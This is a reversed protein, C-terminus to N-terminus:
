PSYARLLARLLAQMLDPYRFWAPQTDAAGQLGKYIYVLTKGELGDHRMLVQAMAAEYKQASAMLAKTLSGRMKGQAWISLRAIAQDVQAELAPPVPQFGKHYAPVRDSRVMLDRALILARRGEAPLDWTGSQEVLTWFLYQLAEPPLGAKNAEAIVQQGFMKGQALAAAEFEAIVKKLIQNEPPDGSHPAGTMREWLRSMFNASTRNM